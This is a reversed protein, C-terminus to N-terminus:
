DWSKIFNFIKPFYNMAVKIKSKFEPIKSVRILSQDLLSELEKQSDNNFFFLLIRSYIGALIIRKTYFNFDVSTDGAIFWIQDISKYLQRSLYMKKRPILLNLFINKYFQKNKNMLNIKLLLIKRIRKHIPLRILDLKKCHYELDKNLEELSFKILDEKGKPFLLETEDNDLNYEVSINRLTNSNIGNQAIINKAFELVELRKNYLYKNQSM